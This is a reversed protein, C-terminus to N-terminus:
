FEMSELYNLLKKCYDPHKELLKKLRMPVLITGFDQEQGNGNDSNLRNVADLKRNHQTNVYAKTMRVSSHTLLSSLLFPDDIKESLRTAFTHRLDHFKFDEIGANEVAKRFKTIHDIKRHKGTHPDYYLFVYESGIKKNKQNLDVLIEFLRDSIPLVHPKKNKSSESTLYIKRENLDIHEWKLNLIASKRM